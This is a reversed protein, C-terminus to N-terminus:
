YVTLQEEPMTRVIYSFPLELYAADMAHASVASPAGGGRGRAAKTSNNARSSASDVRPTLKALLLQPTLEAVIARPGGPTLYRGIRHRCTTLDHYSPALSASLELSFKFRLAAFGDVWDQAVVCVAIVCRIPQTPLLFRWAKVRAVRKAFEAPKRAALTAVMLRSQKSLSLPTGGTGGPVYGSRAGLDSAAVGALPLAMSRSLAKVRKRGAHDLPPLLHSANSSEGDGEADAASKARAQEQEYIYCAM